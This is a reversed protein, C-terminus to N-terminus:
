KRLLTYKLGLYPQKRFPDYAIQYTIRGKTFDITPSLTNYGALIGVKLDWKNPKFILSDKKITMFISDIIMTPVKLRIGTTDYLLNGQVLAKRYIDYEKTILSDQYLKLTNCETSDLIKYVTDHIVKYKLNLAMKIITDRQKITDTKHVILTDTITNLHKKSTSNCQKGLLFVSLLIIGYFMYKTNNLIKQIM